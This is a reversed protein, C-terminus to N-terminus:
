ARRRACRGARTPAATPLGYLRGGINFVGVERGDVEVVRHTGQPFDAVARRGDRDIGFLTLANEGFM